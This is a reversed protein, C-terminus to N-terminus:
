AQAVRAVFREVVENFRETEDLFPCHGSQEFVALEAGPMSAAVLEAAALPCLNDHRGSVVLSPV